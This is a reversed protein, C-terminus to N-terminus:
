AEGSDEPWRAYSIATGGENELYQLSARDFYLLVKGEWEGNRQKCCSLLCDAKGKHKEPEDEKAKNRWVTFVNDVMDTIAGTGKVDMKDPTDDVESGKKRSHAVLHVHVNCRMAFEALRDVFAKQKNYEDEGFGCKALSDVLFNDCGYRRYAYEFIELMKEAKATGQIDFIYLYGDFYDALEGRCEEETPQSLGMAQRYLRSLLRPPKFEMSAACWRHGKGISDVTIHGLVQSKGHGNFGAWVSVEGARLRLVGHTKVWPLPTGELGPGGQFIRVVDDVYDTASRLEPPDCTKAEAVLTKLDVGALHAGNADKHEGFEIVLCRHRGLRGIVQELAKRGQEDNDYALYITEYALLNEWENALWEDQQAGTGAGRPVSLAAYGQEFFSMADLEGECIIVAEGDKPQAQWGFLIPESEKSTWMRDKHDIPRFKIFKVDADHMYPFVAVYGLEETHMEGVRYAALTKASLGRKEFWAALESKPKACRPKPPLKYKKRKFFEPEDDKLGLFGKAEALAGKKDLGRVAMILDILDGGREDSAFDRWVGGKGPSLNVGLSDGEDGAVSGCRWESGMRKGGPLLWRCVDEAREGLMAAIQKIDHRM